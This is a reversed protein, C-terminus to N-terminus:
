GAERLLEMLDDASVRAATETGELLSNALDRKQGHLAVIKEEITNAAVLRYVTVPRLQGIRHARDSAQDEVAPNWWPDVHIVYDAATLNLGTGGAKLSILFLEGEGSQFANVRQQREKQPTSGDLYQYSVGESDLHKRLISLHDVFQSFVLARHGNDRLEAVIESFAALKASGIGCDPMVLAPNCCARRLRMIEALIRIQREGPQQGESAALKELATRRLAEYFAAEEGSLEIRQIIDTRPPLEELVQSKTRRLIFPRILKKLLTRAAKDQNREIPAGFRETFTQHSGLLGPNLFRFLNWLEDLRNEVPTGTTAIRFGAKLQMAAQSRKTTMNKIAQAEDLVVTQWNVDTLLEAEQQFLTYSCIVLDFPQLSTVFATRNGPGFLRPNLTPAFRRAESEWNLCVSTPALVLAPGAPARTLLLALAQVTKGLGMDDALCAGVGWHALRCLWAFGEQQYERLEAQLTPPLAPQLELATKFRELLQKWGKDGKVTGAGSLAEELLPASLQHIRQEKGHRDMLRQLDQLKRRFEETLALFEGDGLQIFRGTQQKSLELLQQLSLVQDDSVAIKGELSFWEKGSSVQLKFRDWSALGKLKFREGEPWQLVFAEPAIQVAQHLEELLELTGDPNEIRWSDHDNDYRDFTGCQQLLLEYRQKELSSDRRCQLKKGAVTAIVTSGGQRALFFPGQEGFPRVRLEAQVGEGSPRLLIHLRSDAEITTAEESTTTLDSQVMVHPAVATVAAAVQQEAALPMSLGKGIIDAIRRQEATPEYILLRTPSEWQHFPGSAEGLAPTLCLSLQKGKKTVALAFEGKAITMLEDHLNLLLPHGILTTLARQTDFVYSTQVYYSYNYSQERKICATVAIDQRTLYDLKAAEEMLRKLAVNRGKSWGKTSLKQEIPQITLYAGNDLICWVMRSSNAKAPAAATGSTGVQQLAKLSREWNNQDTAVASFFPQLGQEQYMQTITGTDHAEKPYLAQRLLTAEAALWLFGSVQAKDALEQLLKSGQKWGNKQTQLAAMCGTLLTSPSPTYSSSWLQELEKLATNHGQQQRALLYLIQISTKYPDHKIRSVVDAYDLATKLDGPTGCRLLALIHLLGTMGPLVLKRKGTQKKYRTIKEEFLEVAQLPDGQLLTMVGRLEPSVELAPHKLIEAAALLNGQMMLYFCADYLMPQTPEAAETIEQTIISFVNSSTLKLFADEALINLLSARTAPSMPTLWRRNLPEPFILAYLSGEPLYYSYHKLIHEYIRFTEDRSDQYLALRLDQLADDLNRYYTKRIVPEVAEMFRKLLGEEAAMGILDNQIRLPCSYNGMSVAALKQAVFKDFLLTLEPLTITKGSGLRIDARQLCGIFPSRAVPVRFFALLQLTQREPITLARYSEILNETNSSSM